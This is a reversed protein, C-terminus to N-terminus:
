RRREATRGARGTSQGSAACHRLRVEQHGGQAHRQDNGVLHHLDEAVAAHRHHRGDSRQYQTALSFIILSSCTPAWCMHPVYWRSDTVITGGNGHDAAHTSTVSGVSTLETIETTSVAEHRSLMPVTLKNGGSAAGGGGGILPDAECGIGDGIWKLSDSGIKRILAQLETEKDMLTKRFRCNTSKVDRMRQELESVSSDRSHKSMPRLTARCRKDVQGQPNRHMEVLQVVLVCTSAVFVSVCVFPCLPLPPPSPM